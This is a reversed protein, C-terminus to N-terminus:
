KEPAITQPLTTPSLIVGREKTHVGERRERCGGVGKTHVEETASASPPKLM